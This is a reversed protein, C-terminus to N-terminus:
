ITVIRSMMLVDLILNRYLGHVMSCLTVIKWMIFVDDHLHFRLVYLASKTYCCVRDRFVFELVPLIM